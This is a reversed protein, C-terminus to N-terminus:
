SVAKTKKTSMAFIDDLEENQKATDEESSYELGDIDQEM